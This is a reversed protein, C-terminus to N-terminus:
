SPSCSASTPRPRSRKTRGRSPPSRLWRSRRSLSCSAPVCPSIPPVPSRTSGRPWARCSTPSASRSSSSRADVRDPPRLADKRRRLARRGRVLARLLRADRGSRAAGRAARPLRRGRRNGRLRLVGAAGVAGFGWWGAFVEKPLIVLYLPASAETRRASRSTRRAAEANRGLSYWALCPLAAAAALAAHRVFRREALGNRRRSSRSSRSRTPGRSRPRAPPRTSGRRARASASSPSRSSSGSREARAAAAARRRAAGADDRPAGCLADTRGRARDSGGARGGPVDEGRLPCARLLVRALLGPEVALAATLEPQEGPMAPALAAIAAPFIPGRKTSRPLEGEQISWAARRYSYFDNNPFVFPHLQRLWLGALAVGLVLIARTSTRM